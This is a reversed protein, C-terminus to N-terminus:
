IGEIRINNWLITFLIDIGLTSKNIIIRAYLISILKLFYNRM